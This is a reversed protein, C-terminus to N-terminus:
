ERYEFRGQDPRTGAYPLSVGIGENWTHASELTLTNADYDVQVIQVPTDQGELQIWDGAVISFGDTFYNANEVQMQASNDGSNATATLFVGNDICPSEPSLHFDFTSFDSPAPDGMIDVFGPDGAEDFNGEVSQETEDVYYYYIGHEQNEYLINNKIAVGTMPNHEGDDVWRALLLGSHAVHWDDVLTYGNHYLVNNYIYNNSSNNHNGGDNSLTVGASDCHYFINRRVINYQTRLSLGTASDQDPPVGAFVIYNDDIVNRINVDPESANLIVDRNGCLGGVEDRHCPYWEENHFTNGRVVNYNAYIGLIHHGGYSFTNNMVLNHDSNDVRNDSGIDLVIGSDQQEEGEAGYRSFVSHTIRNYTSDDTILSGAWTVPGAPTDFECGTVNNHSAGRMYLNRECNFFRIATISIYSVSELLVCYVSQTFTVNEDEYATFFIRDADSAGSNVPRITEEYTGERIFVAEGATLTNNAKDVTCWPETLSGPGDDSCTGGISDKDVYYVTGTICAEDVGGECNDDLANGCIESAEPHVDPDQDDCDVNSCHGDRDIDVCDVSSTQTDSDSNGTEESGTDDTDISEQVTDSGAGSETESDTDGSNDTVTDSDFTTDTDVDGESGTDLQGSSDKSCGLLTILISQLCIGGVRKIMSSKM